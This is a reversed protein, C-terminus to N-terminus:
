PGEGGIYIVPNGDEKFGCLEAFTVTQMSLLYM